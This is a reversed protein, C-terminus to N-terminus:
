SSNYNHLRTLDQHRASMMFALRRRKASGVVIFIIKVTVIAIKATAGVIDALDIAAGM